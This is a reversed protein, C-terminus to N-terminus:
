GFLDELTATEETKWGLGDVIQKLPELFSKEFMTNYDVYRHIDLEKPIKGIFAICNERLTNPEKLYLFKIKEGEQIKEYKMTLKNKQLLHNYMLAGRVHMPTGKAYIDSSSTYKVLGNVSRPFAIEEPEMESFLKKTHNIFGQLTKEDATLCLRVAEKLSERVPAPTSSRVIELGM